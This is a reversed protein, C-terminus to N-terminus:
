RIWNSFWADRSAAHRRGMGFDAFWHVGYTYNNSHYMKPWGTAIGPCCYAWQWIGSNVVLTSSAGNAKTSAVNIDNANSKLAGIALPDASTLSSTESAQSNGAEVM